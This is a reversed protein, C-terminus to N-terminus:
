RLADAYRLVRDQFKRTTWYPSVYLRPTIAWDPQSLYERLGGFLTFGRTFRSRVQDRVHRPANHAVHGYPYAFLRSGAVIQLSDPVTLEVEVMEATLAALNPHSRTHWGLAVRSGTSMVDVPSMLRHWEPLTDYPPVPLPELHRLRARGEDASILGADVALAIQDWWASPAEHGSGMVFVLPRTGHGALIDLAEEVSRVYGDDLSIFVDSSSAHWQRDSLKAPDTFRFGAGALAKMQRRFQGVSVNLVRSSRYRRVQRAPLIRHYALVIPTPM